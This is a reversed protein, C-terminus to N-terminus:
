CLCASVLVLRCFEEAHRGPLECAPHVVVSQRASPVLRAASIGALCSEMASTWERWELALTESTSGCADSKSAITKSTCRRTKKNSANLFFISADVLFISADVLFTSANTKSKFALAKSTTRRTESKTALVKKNFALAKKKSVIVQCSAQLPRWVRRPVSRSTFPM